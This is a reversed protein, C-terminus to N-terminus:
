AIEIEDRDFHLIEAKGSADGDEGIEFGDGVVFCVDEFPASAHEVGAVEIFGSEDFGISAIKGAVELGAVGDGVDDKGDLEGVVDAGAPALLGDVM